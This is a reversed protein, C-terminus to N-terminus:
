GFLGELKRLAAVIVAYRAVCLALAAGGIAIGGAAALRAGGSDQRRRYGMVGVALAFIGLGLGVYLGPAPLAACVGGAVALVLALWGM